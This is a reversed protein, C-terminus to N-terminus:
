RLRTSGPWNLSVKYPPQSSAPNGHSVQYMAKVPSPQTAKVLLRQILMVEKKRMEDSQGTSLENNTINYTAQYTSKSAFHDRCIVKGTWIDTWWILCITLKSLAWLEESRKNIRIIREVIKKNSPCFGYCWCMKWFVTASWLETWISRCAIPILSSGTM